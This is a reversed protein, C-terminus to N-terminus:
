VGNSITAIFEEIPGWKYGNEYHKGGWTFQPSELLLNAYFNYKKYFSALSLQTDHETLLMRRFDAHSARNRIQRFSSGFDEPVSEPFSPDTLKRLPGHFNLLRQAADNIKADLDYHKPLVTTKENWKFIALYYEYLGRIFEAYAQYCAVKVPRTNNTALLRRLLNFTSHNQTAIYLEHGATEVLANYTDDHVSFKM